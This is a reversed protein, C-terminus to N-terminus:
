RRRHEPIASLDIVDSILPLDKRKVLRRVEVFGDAQARAAERRLRVAAYLVVSGDVAAWFLLQCVAMATWIAVGHGGREVFQKM